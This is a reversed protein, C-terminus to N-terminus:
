GDRQRALEADLEARTRLPPAFGTRRDLSLAGSACSGVCVGCGLCRDGMVAVHDTELALAGMQCREVCTGCAVCADRDLTVVYRSAAVVNAKGAATAARLFGCCCGCCNCLFNIREAVNDSVHILGHEEARDLAAHM